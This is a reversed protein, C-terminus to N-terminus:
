TKEKKRKKKYNIIINHHLSTLKAFVLEVYKIQIWTKSGDNLFTINNDFVILITICFYGTFWSFMM